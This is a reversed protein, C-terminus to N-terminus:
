LDRLAAGSVRYHQANISPFTHKVIGGRARVSSRNAEDPVHSYQVIVDITDTDGVAQLDRALKAAGREESGGWVATAAGLGLATVILIRAWRRAPYHMSLKQIRTM